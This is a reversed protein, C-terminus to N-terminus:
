ENNEEEEKVRKEQAEKRTQLQEYEKRLSEKQSESADIKAKIEQLEM